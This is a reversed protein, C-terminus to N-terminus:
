EVVEVFGDLAVAFLDAFDGGLELVLYVGGMGVIGFELALEVVEHLEAPGGQVGVDTGFGDVFHENLVQHGLADDAADEIAFMEGLGVNDGGFDLFDDASEGAVVEIATVEVAGEILEVFGDFVSGFIKIEAVLLGEDIGNVLFEELAVADFDCVGMTDDVCRLLDDVEHAGGDFLHKFGFKPM